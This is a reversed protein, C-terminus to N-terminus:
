ALQLSFSIDLISFHARALPSIARNTQWEASCCKASFVKRDLDASPLSLPSFLTPTPIKPTVQPCVSSQGNHTQSMSMKFHHPPSFRVKKLQRRGCLSNQWLECNESVATMSGELWMFICSLDARRRQGRLQIKKRWGSVQRTTNSQGQCKFLDKFSFFFFFLFNNIVVPSSEKCCLLFPM